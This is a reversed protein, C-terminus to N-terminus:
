RKDLERQLAGRILEFSMVLAEMDTRYLRNLMAEFCDLEPVRFLEWKLKHDLEPPAKSYIYLWHPIEETLYPNAPVICHSQAYQSPQPPVPLERRRGLPPAPPSGLAYQPACPHELQTVRTIHNVYYVGHDSSNIREWGTPLGESELPHSWHTTKTNHDVFYKRGRLTFDVTWGAPLPLEEASRFPSHARAGFVLPQGTLSSVSSHGSSPTAYHDRIQQHYALIQLTESQTHSGTSLQKAQSESIQQLSHQSGFASELPSDPPEPPEAAMPITAVSTRLNTLSRIAHAAFHRVTPLTPQSIWVKNRAIQVVNFHNSSVVSSSSPHSWQNSASLSSTSSSPTSTISPDNHNAAVAAASPTALAPAFSQRPLLQQASQWCKQTLTKAALSHAGDSADIGLAQSGSIYQSKTKNHSKQRNTTTWVNIIPIEPPNDKKIYKGSIGDSNRSKNDKKRLM